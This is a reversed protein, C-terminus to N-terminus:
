GPALQPEAESLALLFEPDVGDRVLGELLHPSMELDGILIELHGAHLLLAASMYTDPYMCGGMRGFSM